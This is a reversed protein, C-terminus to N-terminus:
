FAASVSLMGHIVQVPEPKDFYLRYDAELGIALFSFLLYHIGVRSIAFPNKATFSTESPALPSCNSKCDTFTTFKGVYYGAGVLTTMRWHSSFDFFYGFLMASALTTFATETPSDKAITHLGSFGTFLGAHWSNWVRRTAYLSVGGDVKPEANTSNILPFNPGISAVVMWNTEQWIKSKDTKALQTKGKQKKEEEGRSKRQEKAVETIETVIDGAVKDAAGFITADVRNEVPVPTRFKDASGLSIETSIIIENNVKNLTFNGYILIDIDARRCIEAAEKPTLQGKNKKRVETAIPEVKAADIEIFEFKKHLSKTIAEQLSGPMYGFNKTGTKDDYHLIAVRATEAKEAYVPIQLILVAFVAFAYKYANKM